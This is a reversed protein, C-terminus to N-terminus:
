LPLSDAECRLLHVHLDELTEAGGAVVEESALGLVELSQLVGELLICLLLAGEDLLSLRKLVRSVPFSCAILEDSQLLFPLGDADYRLFKAVLQPFLKKTGAVLEELSSLCCTSPLVALFIGIEVLFALHNSFQLTDCFLSTFVNLLFNLAKDLLVIGDTMYGEFLLILDILLIM